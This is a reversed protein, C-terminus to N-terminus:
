FATASPLSTRIPVPGNMRTHAVIAKVVQQPDGGHVNVVIGHPQSVNLPSFGQAKQAPIMGMAGGIGTLSANATSHSVPAAGGGIMPITFTKGGIFPIWGPLTFSFGGVTNNWLTKILGMAAKFPGTIADGIWSFAAGVKTKIDDWVTMLPQILWKDIFNWVKTAISKIHDYIWNWVKKVTEWVQKWHFILYVILLIIGIILAGIGTAMLAATFTSVGLAAALWGVGSAVLGAAAAVAGAAMSWLSAIAAISGEAFSAMAGVLAVGLVAALAKWVWTHKNAYDVFKTFGSLVDSIAPQLKDGLGTALDKAKAKAAELKGAYTDAAASAQGKLRDGLTKLITKSANHQDALKKEAAKVKDVAKMYAVHGKAGAQAANPFNSIIAQLKGQAKTVGDSAAQLKLASSSPVDIDIGLQKLVRSNGTAAKDIALMAQNLPIHKAAALDLAIPLHKMSETVSGTSIVSQALASNIDASSKGFKEYRGQVQEVQAQVQKWSGGSGEVAAQLANNAAAYDEASKLAFAAIAVAGGIAALGIQKMAGKFVDKMHGTKTNFNGMSNGIQSLAGSGVINMEGMKQGITGLNKGIRSSMKNFDNAIKDTSGKLHRSENETVKSLTSKGAVVVTFVTSKNAM